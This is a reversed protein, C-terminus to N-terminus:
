PGLRHIVDWEWPRIHSNCRVTLASYTFYMESYPGPIHKTFSCTLWSHSDHWPLSWDGSKGRQVHLMRLFRGYLLDCLARCGHWCVCIMVMGLHVYCALRVLFNCLSYKRCRDSFYLLFQHKLVHFQHGWINPKLQWGFCERDITNGDISVNYVIYLGHTYRLGHQAHTLGLSRM